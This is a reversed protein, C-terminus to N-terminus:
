LNTKAKAIVIKKVIQVFSELELNKNQLKILISLRLNKRFYSLMTLKTTVKIPDYELLILLM